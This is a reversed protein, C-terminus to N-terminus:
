ASLSLLERELETAENQLKKNEEESEKIKQKQKNEKDEKVQKIQSKLADIKLLWARKQQALEEEKLHYSSVQIQAHPPPPPPPSLFAPPTSAHGKTAEAATVAARVAAAAALYVASPVSRGDEEEEQPISSTAASTSSSSAPPAAASAPVSEGSCKSIHLERTRASINNYVLQKTSLKNGPHKRWDVLVIGCHPCPDGEGLLAALEQLVVPRHALRASEVTVAAPPAAAAASTAATSAVAFKANEAAARANKVAAALAVAKAQKNCGGCHGIRNRVTKTNYELQDSNLDEGVYVCWAEKRIHCTGCPELPEMKSGAADYLKSDMDQASTTEKPPEPPPIPKAKKKLPEEESERDSKSRKKTSPPPCPDFWSHRPPPRSLNPFEDVISKFKPYHPGSRMAGALLIMGKFMWKYKSTSIGNKSNSKECWEITEDKKMAPYWNCVGIIFRMADAQDPLGSYYSM